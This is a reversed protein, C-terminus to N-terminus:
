FVLGNARSDTRQAGGIRVSAVRMNITEDRAIAIGVVVRKGDVAILELCGLGEVMRYALSRYTAGFGAEKEGPVSEVPRYPIWM